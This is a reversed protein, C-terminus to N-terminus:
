RQISAQVADILAVKAPDREITGDELLRVNPNIRSMGTPCSKPLNCFSGVEAISAHLYKSADINSGGHNKGGSANSQLVVNSTIKFIKNDGPSSISSVEGHNRNMRVILRPKLHRTMASVVEKQTIEKKTGSKMSFLFNFIAKIIDLLAYRLVTLRKDYMSSVTAGYNTLMESMNEVIYMFLEYIDKVEVGDERLWEMAMGDIYNDLSDLHLEIGNLLKGESVDLAIAIRGLLVRWLDLNDVFEPKIRHPFHDVLYFFAAIMSETTKNYAERNIAIRVDSGNYYKTKMTRPKLGVSKCIVWDSKPYADENIDDTGVAVSANAFKAFTETVGYKCFMYHVPTANMDTYIRNVASARRSAKAHYVNSYVVFATSREGDAIFHHVMRRFTLRDRNLPIFINDVGVSIAKDALVPSVAFTSGVLTIIGGDRVFPLYLYRAPLDVGKFSFLYKVMYVDSRAMEFVRKNKRKVPAMAYEEQPTCPVCGKYVLGEPFGPAACQWIRDIYRVVWKMHEVALGDNVVPNFKPMQEHIHGFLNKDM